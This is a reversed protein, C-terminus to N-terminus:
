LLLSSLTPTLPLTHPQQQKSLLGKFPVLLVHGAHMRVIGKHMLAYVYMHMSLLAGHM